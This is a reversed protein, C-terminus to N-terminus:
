IFMYVHHLFFSLLSRSSVESEKMNGLYAHCVGAKVKLYLPIEIKSFLRSSIVEFVELAKVHSNNEIHLSMLLSVIMLDNESFFNSFYNELIDIATEVQGCRRYM